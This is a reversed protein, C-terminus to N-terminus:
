DFSQECLNTKVRQLRSSIALSAASVIDAPLNNWARPGVRLLKQCVFYYLVDKNVM